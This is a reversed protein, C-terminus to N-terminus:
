PPLIERMPARVFTGAAARHLMEVRDSDLRTCRLMSIREIDGIAVNSGLASDINLYISQRDGYDFAGIVSEVRRYYSTSRTKIEIDFDDTRWLTQLNPYAYVEIATSSSAIDDAPEFDKGKSSMWFAKQRGKRYYLWQRLSYKEADTKVHWRMNYTMEPINRSRIFHIVSQGNDFESSEWAINEELSGDAIIPCEDLLDLSRYVVPPTSSIDEGETVIFEVSLQNLRAGIRDANVGDRATAELLAMLKARTYDKQVSSLYTGNSDSYVTVQEYKNSSEWLIATDSISTYTLDPTLTIDSGSNVVGIDIVSSWEPIYFGDKAQEDRVLSRAHFYEYDTLTHEMTFVRRPFTRLALRQENGRSALVDTLWELSEIM